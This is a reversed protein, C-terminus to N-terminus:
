MDETCMDTLNEDEGLALYIGGHLVIRNLHAMLYIFDSVLSGEGQTHSSLVVSHNLAAPSTEASVILLACLSTKYLMRESSPM